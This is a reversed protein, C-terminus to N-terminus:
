KAIEIGLHAVWEAEEWYCQKGLALIELALMRPRFDEKKQLAEPNSLYKLRYFVATAFFKDWENKGYNIKQLEELSSLFDPSEAPIEELVSYAEESKNAQLLQEAKKFLSPEDAFGLTSHALILSLIILVTM